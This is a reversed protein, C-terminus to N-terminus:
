CLFFCRNRWIGGYVGVEENSAHFEFQGCFLLLPTHRVSNVAEPNVHADPPEHQCRSTHFEGRGGGSLMAFFVGDTGTTMM